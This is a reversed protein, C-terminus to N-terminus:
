VNSSPPTSSELGAAMQQEVAALTDIKDRDLGRAALAQTLDRLTKAQEQLKAWVQMRDNQSASAAPVPATASIEASREALRLLDRMEPMSTATIHTVSRDTDVFAYWAVACAIAALAAMGCFALFLKAKVGFVRRAAAPRGVKAQASLSEAGSM